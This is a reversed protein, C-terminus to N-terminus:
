LPHGCKQSERTATLSKECEELYALAARGLATDTRPSDGFMSIMYVAFGQRDTCPGKRELLAGDATRIRYRISPSYAHKTM